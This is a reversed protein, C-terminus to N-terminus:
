VKFVYALLIHRMAGQLHQGEGSCFIRFTQVFSSYLNFDMMRTWFKYKFSVQSQTSGPSYVRLQNLYVSCAQLTCTARASM